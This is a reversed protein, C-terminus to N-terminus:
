SIYVGILGELHGSRQRFGNELGHRGGRRRRRGGGVVSCLVIEGGDGDPERPKDEDEEALEVALGFEVM